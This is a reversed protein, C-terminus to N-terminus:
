NKRWLGSNIFMNLEEVSYQRIIQRADNSSTIHNYNGDELLKQLAVIGSGFGYKGDHGRIASNIDRNMQNLYQNLQSISIQEMSYRANGDRTFSGSNGETLYRNLARLGSGKGYKADNKSM